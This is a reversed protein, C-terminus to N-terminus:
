QFMKNKCGQFGTEVFCDVPKECINHSTTRSQKNHYTSVVKAPAVIGVTSKTLKLTPATIETNHEYISFHL